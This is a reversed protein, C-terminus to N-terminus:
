VDFAFYGNLDLVQFIQEVDENMRAIYVVVARDALTKQLLLLIQLGATDIETVAYLDLVVKAPFNEHDTFLDHKLQAANYITMEGALKILTHDKNKKRSINM